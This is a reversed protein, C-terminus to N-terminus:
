TSAVNIDKRSCLADSMTIFLLQVRGCYVCRRGIWFVGVKTCGYVFESIGPSAAELLPSSYELLLDAGLVKYVVNSELSIDELIVVESTVEILGGILVELMSLTFFSDFFPL